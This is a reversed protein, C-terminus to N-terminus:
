NIGLGFLVLSVDPSFPPDLMGADLRKWNTSRFFDHQKADRAGHRHSQCGLREKVRKKLLQLLSFTLISSLKIVLPISVQQCLSKAEESFKSSYKEMDEKV